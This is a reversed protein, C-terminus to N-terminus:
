IAVRKISAPRLDVIDGSSEKLTPREFAEKMNNIVDLWKTGCIGRSNKMRNHYCKDSETFWVYRVQISEGSLDLAARSINWLLAERKKRTIHTEDIIIKGVSCNRNIVIFLIDRIADSVIPEISEDYMYKGALMTRISDKNIIVARRKNRSLREVEKRSWTSKGSGPLGILIDIKLM